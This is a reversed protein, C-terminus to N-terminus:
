DSSAICDRTSVDRQDRLSLRVLMDEICEIQSHISDLSLTFEILSGIEKEQESTLVTDAGHTIYPVVRHCCLLHSWTPPLDAKKCAVYGKEQYACGSFPRNNFETPEVFCMWVVKVVEGEVFRWMIQWMRFDARTTEARLELAFNEMITDTWSNITQCRFLCSAM